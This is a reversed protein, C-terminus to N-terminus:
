GWFWFDQVWFGFGFGTPTSSENKKVKKVMSTRRGAWLQRIRVPFGAYWSLFLRRSLGVTCGVVPWRFHVIDLWGWFGTRTWRTSRARSLWGTCRQDKKEPGNQDRSRSGNQHLQLMWGSFARLLPQCPACYYCLAYPLVDKQIHLSRHQRQNNPLLIWIKRCNSGNQRLDARRPVLDPWAQGQM